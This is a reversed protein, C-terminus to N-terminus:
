VHARGIQITITSNNGIGYDYAHSHWSLQGGPKIKMIRVISKEVDGIESLCKLIYGCKTSAPTPIVNTPKHGETLDGDNLGDSSMLSCGWWSSIITDRVQPTIARSDYPYFDDYSISEYECIIKELDFKKNLRLHPISKLKKIISLREENVM